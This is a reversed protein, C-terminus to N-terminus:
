ASSQTAGQDPNKLLPPSAHTQRNRPFDDREHNHGHGQGARGNKQRGHAKQLRGQIGADVGGRLQGLRGRVGGVVGAAFFKQLFGPEDGPIGGQNLGHRPTIM